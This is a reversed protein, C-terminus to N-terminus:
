GTEDYSDEEDDEKDEEDEDEGDDEESESDQFEADCLDEFRVKAADALTTFLALLVALSESDKAERLLRRGELSFEYAENGVESRLSM